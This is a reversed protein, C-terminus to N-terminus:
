QEVVIHYVNNAVASRVNLIYMGNAINKGIQIKENINGAHAMVKNNYIVQGIMNTIELTVEEDTATGLTGKITFVGKNPNPLVSIDSGNTTVPKVGVDALHVSLSASASQSGCAGERTVVCSVNDGDFENYNIYMPSTAGPIQTNDLMWQYSFVSGAVPAATAFFTDVQAVGIKPGLHHTITFVPAAAVDINMVVPASFVTDALPCQYNSKVRLVIVDGDNITTPTYNFTTGTGVVASNKLWWHEPASGALNWTASFTVPTGQCVNNGPTTAVTATAMKYPLVNMTIANMATTPSACTANSTLTVSIVDGNSPIYSFATGSGMVVGGVKWVYGPASGEGTPNATFTNAVGTCTSTGNSASITVAPIVTADIVVTKTGTMNNACLTTNDTGVITYVGGSKQLGFNLITGTGGVPLGSPTSGAFLQYNIGPVSGALDMAVGAGGACYHGGGGIAFAVPIANVMINCSATMNNVCGTAADTAVATYAGAGTQLGFNLGTGTGNVPSGIAMGADYLQYDVGTKSGSLYIAFGAGGACYTGGGTVTYAAPLANISVNASGTMNMTCASAAGSAVVTYTGAMTQLGLDLLVGTGSVQGGVPMGGAFLQYNVGADSGSLWIHTGGTGSCYSGGGSVSYVNPLANVIVTASGTMNATCGTINNTAVETYVGSATKLGFDLATGTGTVPSGVPGGNFLQYSIGPTSVNLGVHVGTGGACYNGGGTVNFVAPLPNSTIVAGGSMNSTCGTAADAASISYMGLGSQMGFDLSTGTGPMSSGLPSGLYYLQYNIGTGSGSLSVDKGLGGACYAGGGIVNYVVPTPNIIVVATGNMNNTCGTLANTGIITYTGTTTFVGFDLASSSGTIPSGVMTAGRWLQYSIGPDSFSLGINVGGAGACYGHGGTVNYIVPLTNETVVPSGLMNSTCTTIPNTAVATFTATAPGGTTWTGFDLASGTGNMLGPAGLSIGNRNLQYQRGTKSNSLQIDVGTAGACYGPASASLTFQLPLPNIVVTVSGPMALTCGNSGVVTYTGAATQMGFDVNTGGLGTIAPGVPIGGMFLQYSTGLDSGNLIIDIGTGGLCYSNSGGGSVMVTYPNPLSNMTVTSSGSMNNSCGTAPNTASVTYTFNGPQLGFDLGSNSGPQTSVSTIGNWLQYNIGTSSYNLGVHVGSGGSCYSGGGTMNFVTPLANATVTVSGLVNASCGAATKAIATYVGPSTFLPLGFGAGFDLKTGTTGALPTFFLSGNQYLQYNTGTTSMSDFIDVGAGGVCYNGGNTTTLTSSVPLPNINITVTGPMGKTCGTVANTAVVTYVGAATMNGFDLAAGSGGLPSGFPVGGYYLQYNVGSTSSNLQVDLGTGGSCYSGVSGSGPQIAFGFNTPLANVTEALTALCGTAFTYNITSFSGGAVGTVIGSTGITAITTTSSSWVGGASADNLTTTSNVCVNASGTIPAPVPNVTLTATAQCSGLIAPLTYTIVPNGAILGTVVGGPPGVTVSALGPNSSAWTGGGGDVLNTTKGVCVALTGGIASPNANITAVTTNICGTPLTYTIGPSGASLGTLLGTVLGMSAFTTNGSTWQGGLTADSLISTQNVCLATNGLIATPNPQVTATMTAICTTPLTYTIILSGTTAGYYLNGGSITVNANSASWAGGASADSMPYTLGLCINPNGVIAVPLPNVTMTTTMLCGTPLTYVVTSTGATIGSVIGTTPSGSVVTAVTTTGSTWAGGTSTETLTATLGMCVQFIGGPITFAAPLPNVTIPTTVICGNPEAYSLTPVGAAVGTAVGGPPGVTVTAFNTNSSTWTGGAIADTLTITLGACVNNTGTIPATALVTVNLTNSSCGTGVSYSITAVGAAVGTAVASSGGGGITIVGPNSSYWTGGSGSALNFTGTQGQCVTAPGSAGSPAAVVTVVQTTYATTGCTLAGGYSITTTGAAIGSVLGTGSVTAKGPVTSTWAGGGVVDTLQTTAGTCLSFAGTIIGATCIPTIQVQGVGNNSNQTNTTVGSVGAGGVFSSGGGGGGIYSGGGGYYGGGGGGGYYYCTNSYGGYGLGGSQACYVAGSGGSTQSGGAGCYYYYYYGCYQGNGGNLGGGGGGPDSCCYYGAGGGGGAVIVRNTLATGGVRLDSPAGGGGGYYYGYGGSSSGGDGNTGGNAIGYDYGTGTNGVYINVVQGPTVALSCVVAGGYGPTSCPSGGGRAGKAQVRISTVGAPVTYTQRTNTYGYTTTQAFASTTFLSLVLIIVVFGSIYPQKM